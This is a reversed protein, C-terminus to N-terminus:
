LRTLRDSCKATSPATVHLLGWGAIIGKTTMSYPSAQGTGFLRQLGKLDGDFCMQFAPHYPPVIPFTRLSRSVFGYSSRLHIEISYSLFSPLLLIRREEDPGAGGKISSQHTEVGSSTIQYIMSGFVTRFGRARRVLTQRTYPSLFSGPTVTTSSANLNQQVHQTSEIDTRISVASNHMDSM